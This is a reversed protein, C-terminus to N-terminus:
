VGEMKIEEELQRMAREVSKLRKQVGDPLDAVSLWEADELEGYWRLWQRSRQSIQDIAEEETSPLNAPRGGRTEVSEYNAKIEAELRRATWGEDAARNQLQTRFKKHEYPVSLLKTVHGWGIPKGNPRRLKCLQRFETATYQDAFQRCKILTASSEDTEDVLQEIVGKSYVGSRSEGLHQARRGLDYYKRLRALAETTREPVTYSAQKGRQAM